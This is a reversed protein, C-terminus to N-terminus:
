HTIHNGIDLINAKGDIVEFLVRNSGDLRVTHLNRNLRLREYHWKKPQEYLGQTGKENLVQVFNDFQKQTASNMKALAKEAKQHLTFKEQLSIAVPAATKLAESSYKEILAEVRPDNPKLKSFERWFDDNSAISPHSLAKAVRCNMALLPPTSLLIGLVLIFILKSCAM